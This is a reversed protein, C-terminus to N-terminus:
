DWWIYLLVKSGHINRKPTWTTPQGPDVWLKKRKPNDYFVWKDDRTVVRHWFSNRQYRQLLLESMVLRREVDRDKLLYPM